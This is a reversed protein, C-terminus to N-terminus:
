CVRGETATAIPVNTASQLRGYKDVTFKVANVTETGVPEGNAGTASVSTLSETNYFGQSYTSTDPVVTTLGM